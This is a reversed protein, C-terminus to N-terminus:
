LRLRFNDDRSNQNIFTWLPKKKKNKIFNQTQMLYAQKHIEEPVKILVM